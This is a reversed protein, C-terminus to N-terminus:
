DTRWNWEIVADEVLMDQPNNAVGQWWNSDKWYALLTAGDALTVLVEQGYPPLDM